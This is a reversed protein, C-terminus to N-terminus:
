TKDKSKMKEIYKTQVPFKLPTDTKRLAIVRSIHEAFLTFRNTPHITPVQFPMVTLDTIVWGNQLFFDHFLTPNLNYFGHNMMDLPSLHCIVGGVKVANAANLFAQGINFCHELTGPDIVLDHKGLDHPYNLDAIREHGTESTFDVVTLECGLKQFLELTEPLPEKRGHWEHVQTFKTPKYGFLDEIDKSSVILDPYGLSLVKGKLYPKLAKLAHLPLGM